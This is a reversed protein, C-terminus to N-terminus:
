GNTKTFEPATLLPAIGDWFSRGTIAFAKCGERDIIDQAAGSYVYLPANLAAAARKLATLGNDSLGATLIGFVKRRAAAINDGGFIVCGGNLAFGVLARVREPAPKKLKDAVENYVGDDVARKFSRNFLKQKLLKERCAANGCVYAGRGSINDAAVAGDVLSVRTLEGKPFRGRCAVCMRTPTKKNQENLNDTKKDNDL